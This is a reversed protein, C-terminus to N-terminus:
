VPVVKDSEIYVILKAKVSYGMQELLQGYETIQKKHDNKEGGTKYDIIVADNNSFVVRDPRFLEGTLSIIEAENRVTLGKEFHMKLDEREVIRHIMARMQEREETNILGEALM